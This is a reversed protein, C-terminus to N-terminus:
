EATPCPPADPRDECSVGDWRGWWNDVGCVYITGDDGDPDCCFEDVEQECECPFPIEGQPCRSPPCDPISPYMACFADHVYSWRGDLDCEYVNEDGGNCCLEGLRVGPCPCRPYDSGSGQDWVCGLLPDFLDPGTAIEDDALTDFERGRDAAADLGFWSEEDEREDTVEGPGPDEATDVDDFDGGSDGSDLATDIDSPVDIPGV